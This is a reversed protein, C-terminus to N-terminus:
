EPQLLTIEKQIGKILAEPNKDARYIDLINEAILSAKRYLSKRASEIHTWNGTETFKNFARAMDSAIISRYGGLFSMYFALSGTKREEIIHRLMGRESADALTDMAARAFISAKSSLVSSLMEAWIFGIKESEFAEGLEHHIYTHLESAAVDKIMERIGEIDEGSEIGYASFAVSLSSATKRASLEEFKEWLLLTSIDKRAFISRHQLMAPHISLDRAYEKGSTFVGYGDLVEHSHIDSLFFVPKGYLGYGAGYLLGSEMLRANIREAEFPGFEDGQIRLPSFEEESIEEWLAERQGIWDSIDGDASSDWPMIGSDFRYLERLRLLLGCISYYGWYRADSINSNRKVQPVLEELLRSKM